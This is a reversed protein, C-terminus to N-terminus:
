PTGWKSKLYGIVAADEPATLARNYIIAEAIRGDWWEFGPNTAGLVFSTATATRPGGDIHNTGISTDQFVFSNIGTTRVGCIHPNTDFALNLQSVGFSETQRSLINTSARTLLWAGTGGTKAFMSQSTAANDSQAVFYIYNDGSPVALLSAGACEMSDTTGDFDIVNRGNITRTGTTPQRSGTGQLMHNGNGSKDNWQSVSGATQTITAADSADLWLALGSISAPTFPTSAGRGGRSRDRSRLM